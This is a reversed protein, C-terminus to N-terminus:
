EYKFVSPINNVIQTALSSNNEAASTINLNASDDLVIGTFLRSFDAYMHVYQAQDPVITYNQVPMQVQKYNANSGIKYIFPCMKGSMDASTDISGQANFFVYGDPQAAGGFWMESRNLILSDGSSTPDLANTSPALGVKFRISKYNGAPVEGVAYTETALTKFLKQNGVDYFTGDLKELQIDSMYFQGISLSIARGAETTYNVNYADVEQADIFSHLHLLLTGKAIETTNDTVPDTDKEKKCSSSSLVLMSAFLFLLFQIKIKTKMAKM